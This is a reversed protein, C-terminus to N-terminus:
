GIRSLVRARAADGPPKRRKWNLDIYWNLLPCFDADLEALHGKIGNLISFRLCSLVIQSEM